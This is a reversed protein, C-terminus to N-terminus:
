LCLKQQHCDGSAAGWGKDWGPMQRKRSEEGMRLELYEKQPIIAPEPQRCTIHGDSAAEAKSVHGVGWRGGAGEDQGSFQCNRCSQLAHEPILDDPNLGEPTVKSM